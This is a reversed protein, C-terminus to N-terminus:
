PHIIRDEASGAEKPPQKLSSLLFFWYIPAFLAYSGLSILFYGILIVPQNRFRGSAGNRFVEGESFINLYPMLNNYPGV